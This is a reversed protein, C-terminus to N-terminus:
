TEDADVRNRFPENHLVNVEKMEHSRGQNKMEPRVPFAFEERDGFSLNEIAFLTNYKRDVTMTKVIPFATKIDQQNVHTLLFHLGQDPAM